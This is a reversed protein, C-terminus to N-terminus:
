PNAVERALAAKDVKFLRLTKRETAKEETLWVPWDDGELRTIFGEEAVGLCIVLYDARSSALGDRLKTRDEFATIGNWFSAESRHYGAATVSHPTHVLIAPWLNGTSFVISEPLSAIEAMATPSRCNALSVSDAQEGSNADGGATPRLEAPGAIMRSASEITAPVALLLVLAAPARLRNDRPITMFAHVVFGALFPVVPSMLNAGRIQAIAFGLGVIFVVFAQLLAIALWRPTRDRM